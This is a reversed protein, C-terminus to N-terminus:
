RELDIQNTHTEPLSIEKLKACLHDTTVLSPLCINCVIVQLDDCLDHSPNLLNVFNPREEHRRTYMHKNKKGKNVGKNM